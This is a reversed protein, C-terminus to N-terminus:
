VAALSPLSSQRRHTKASRLPGSRRPLWLLLLLLLLLRLTADGRLWMKAPLLEPCSAVEAAADYADSAADAAASAAESTAAAVESGAAKVHEVAETAHEKAAEAHGDDSKSCAALAAIMLTMILFTFKSKM